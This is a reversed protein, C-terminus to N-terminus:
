AAFVRHKVAFGGNRHGNVAAGLRDDERRIGRFFNREFELVEALVLRKRDPGQAFQFVPEGLVVVKEKFALHADAIHEILRDFKELKREDCDEITQVQLDRIAHFDLQM